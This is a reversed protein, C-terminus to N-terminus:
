RRREGERNRASFLHAHSRGVREWSRGGDREEHEGGTGVARGGERESARERIWRHVHDTSRITEGAGM